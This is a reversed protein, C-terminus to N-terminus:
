KKCSKQLLSNKANYKMLQGFKIAKNVKSKPWLNVTITQTATQSTM